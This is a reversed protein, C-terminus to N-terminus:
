AYRAPTCLLLFHQFEKLSIKGDHDLDARKLLKSIQADSAVIDLKDLARRIDEERIFGDATHDLADFVAALQARRHLALAEFESYHIVGEQNSDFVAFLDEIHEAKSPLELKQLGAYVKCIVM